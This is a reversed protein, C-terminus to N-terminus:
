CDIESMLMKILLVKLSVVCYPSWVCLLVVSLEYSMLTTKHTFSEIFYSRLLPGVCLMVVSLEYSILMKHTFSDIFYCCLLPVLELMVSLEYSMLM